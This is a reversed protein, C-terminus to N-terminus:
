SPFWRLRDRGTYYVLGLLRMSAVLLYLTVFWGALGSLIPIPFAMLVLNFGHQIGVAGLLLACTTLYPGAVRVMAPVIVLPNLGSLGDAVAVGLLAMPFCLGGLVGLITGLVVAGVGPAAAATGSWGGLGLCLLAPGACVALVTLGLLYPRAIDDWVNGFEPWGPPTADGQASSWIVSQLYAFLYGGSIVALLVGVLLVWQQLLEMFRFFVMGSLLVALGNGQVPYAVVGPLARWFSQPVRPPGSAMRGRPRAPHGVAKAASAAAGTVRVVPAAHASPEFVLEVQGMRLRDGPAVEGQEVLEGRICTGNASGLDRVVLTGEGVQWDCHHPSISDDEIQVGNDPARGVRYDGPPLEMTQGAAPGNVFQIRAM